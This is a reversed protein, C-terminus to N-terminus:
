PPCPYKRASIGYIARTDYTSCSEITHMLIYTLRFSLRGIMVIHTKEFYTTEFIHNEIDHYSELSLIESIHKEFIYAMKTTIEFM